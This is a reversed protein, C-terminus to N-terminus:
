LIGNNNYNKMYTGTALIKDNSDKSDLKNKYMNSSLTQLTQRAEYLQTNPNYSVTIVPEPSKYISNGIFIM